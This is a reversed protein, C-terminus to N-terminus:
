CHIGAQMNILCVKSLTQTVEILTSTETVEPAMIMTM